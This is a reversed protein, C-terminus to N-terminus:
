RKAASVARAAVTGQILLWPLIRALKRHGRKWLWYQMLTQAGHGVAIWSTAGACSQTPLWRERWGQSLHYCTIGADAARALGTVSFTIKQQRDWFRSQTIASPANPIVPQDDAFGPASTAILVIALLVSRTSGM